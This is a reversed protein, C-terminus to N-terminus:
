LAERPTDEVQEARLEEATPLDRWAGALASVDEPWTMRTRDRALRALWASLSLGAAEAAARTRALLDDDLYITVQAM